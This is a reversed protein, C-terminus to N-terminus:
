WSLAAPALVYISGSPLRTTDGMVPRSLGQHVTGTRCRNAPRTWRLRPYLRSFGLQRLMRGITTEHCDVAFRAKALAALNPVGGVFSTLLM